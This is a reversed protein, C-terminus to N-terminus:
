RLLGSGPRNRSAPYNGASTLGTAWSAIMGPISGRESIQQIRVKRMRSSSAVDVILDVNTHHADGLSLSTTTVTRDDANLLAVNTTRTRRANRNTASANPEAVNGAIGFM